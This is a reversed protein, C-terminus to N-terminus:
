LVAILFSTSCTALLDEHKAFSQPLQGPDLDGVSNVIGVALVSHCSGVDVALM